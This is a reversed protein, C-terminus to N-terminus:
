LAPVLIAIAVRLANDRRTSSRSTTDLIMKEATRDIEITTIGPEVKERLYQLVLGVLQGAARM